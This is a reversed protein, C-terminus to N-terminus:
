GKELNSLYFSLWKFDKNKIIKEIENKETRYLINFYHKEWKLIESTYFYLKSIKNKWLKSLSSWKNNYTQSLLIKETNWSQFLIKPENWKDDKETWWVRNLKNYIWVKEWYKYELIQWIKTADFLYKKWWIDVELASHKPITLWKHKIWLEELFTHWVISFWVCYLEESQQIKSIKYWYDEKTLQYPFNNYLEKIIANSAEIEKKIIEEKNWIKRVEILEKKYKKINIKDRLLKEKEELIDAKSRIVIVDWKIKKDKREKILAQEWQTMINLGFGLNLFSICSQLIRFISISGTQYSLMITDRLFVFDLVEKIKFLLPVSTAYIINSIFL